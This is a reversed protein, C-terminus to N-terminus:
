VSPHSRAFSQDKRARKWSPTEPEDAHLLRDEELPRTPTGLPGVCSLVFFVMVVRWTLADFSMFMMTLFILIMRSLGDGLRIGKAIAIALMLTGVIGSAALERVLQNDFVLVDETTVIVGNTLLDRADDGNGFLVAWFSQKTLVAGISSIVETRHSYSRTDEFDELGFLTVVDTSILFVMAGTLAAVVVVPRSATSRTVFWVGVVVIVALAASRTGSMLLGGFSIALVLWYRKRHREFIMWMSAIIGIACLTGYPIPGSTSGLVRGPLFPALHNVRSTLNDTGDPRPWVANMGLFTETAGLLVQSTVVLAILTPAYARTTLSARRALVAFLALLLAVAIKLAAGQPSSSAAAVLTSYAIYLFLAVNTARTAGDLQPAPRLLAAVSIALSGAVAVIQMDASQGFSPVLVALAVVGFIAIQPVPRAQYTLSLFTAIAIISIALIM